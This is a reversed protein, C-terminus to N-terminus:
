LVLALHWLVVIFYLIVSTVPFMLKFWKEFCKWVFVRFGSDLVLSRNEMLAMPVCTIVHKLIQTAWQIRLALRAERKPPVWKLRKYRSDWEKLRLLKDGYIFNPMNVSGHILVKAKRNVWIIQYLQVARDTLRLSWKILIINLSDSEKFGFAIFCNKKATTGGDCRQVGRSWLKLEVPSASRLNSCLQQVHIPIIQPFLCSTEENWAWLLEMRM